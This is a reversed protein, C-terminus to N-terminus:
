LTDSADWTAKPFTATPLTVANGTGYVWVAGFDMRENIHLNYVISIDHRRDYRYPFVKGYNLNDFQRTSKSWTYGIWGTSKGADKRVLFEVGYSEGKGFELKDEWENVVDLFGAGDKYEVLNDMEKYYGELSIALGKQTTNVGLAYQQSVQPKVKATSPVWLDTPLGIGSNVLLHIYQAMSAYSAKVSWKPALKQTLTIRPQLSVYHEGDTLAGSFHLGVNVQTGPVVTLNDELYTFYEDMQIHKAGFTTDARVHSKYESIGPKMSHRVYSGGFRVQNRNNLYFNFDYKLGLDNINSFYGNERLINSTDGETYSKIDITTNLDFQYRAYIATLNSFLRDSFRHNWRFASTVNGWHLDTNEKENIDPSPNNKFTQYYRDRGAYASLYIRDKSSFIHNVKANVDWFNYANIRQADAAKAIPVIFLDLYTRRGSLM